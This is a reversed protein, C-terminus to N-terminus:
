ANYDRRKLFLISYVTIFIVIFIINILFSNKFNDLYVNLENNQFVMITNIIPNTLLINESGEYISVLGISLLLIEIFYMLSYSFSFNNKMRFILFIFLLFIVASLNLIFSKVILSYDIGNYQNQLNLLIITLIYMTALLKIANLIMKKFVINIIFRKKGLRTVLYIYNEYYLNIDLSIIFIWVTMPLSYVLISIPNLLKSIDYNNFIDILSFKLEYYNNSINAKAMIIIIVSVIFILTKKIISM